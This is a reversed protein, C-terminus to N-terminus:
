ISINTNRLLLSIDADLVTSLTVSSLCSAALVESKQYSGVPFLVNKLSEGQTLCALPPSVDIYFIVYM